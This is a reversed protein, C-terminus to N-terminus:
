EDVDHVGIVDPLVEVDLREEPFLLCLHYEALVEMNDGKADGILYEGRLLRFTGLVATGSRLLLLASFCIGVLLGKMASLIKAARALVDEGACASSPGALDGTCIAPFSKVVLTSTSSAATEVFGKVNWTAEVSVVEVDGCLAVVGDEISDAGGRAAAGEPVAAICDGGLIDLTEEGTTSGGAAETTESACGLDSKGM